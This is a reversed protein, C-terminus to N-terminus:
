RENRPLAHDLQRAGYLVDDRSLVGLQSAIRAALHREDTVIVGKSREGDGLKKGVFCLVPVVALRDHLVFSGTAESAM